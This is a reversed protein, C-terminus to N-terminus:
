SVERIKNNVESLYDENLNIVREGDIIMIECICGFYNLNNLGSLLVISDLDSNNIWDFLDSESCNRDISDPASDLDVNSLKLVVENDDFFRSQHCFSLEWKEDRNPNYFSLSKVWVPDNGKVVVYVRM